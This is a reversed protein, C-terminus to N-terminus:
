VAGSSARERPIPRATRPEYEGHVLHSHSIAMAGAVCFSAGLALPIVKDM